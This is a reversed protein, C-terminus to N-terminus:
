KGPEEPRSVNASRPRSVKKIPPVSLYGAESADRIAKSAKTHAERKPRVRSPPPSLVTIPPLLVTPVTPVDSGEDESEVEAKSIFRKRSRRREAYECSKKKRKCGICAGGGTNKECEFNSRVCRRCPPDHFDGSPVIQTGKPAKQTAKSRKPKSVIVKEEESSSASPKSTDSLPVHTDYDPTRAREKGKGIEVVKEQEEEEDGDGLLEFDVIDRLGMMPDDDGEADLDGFRVQEEQLVAMTLADYRAQTTPGPGAVPGPTPSRRTPLIVTDPIVTQTVKPSLPTPSTSNDVPVGVLPEVPIAPTATTAAPPITSTPAQPSRSDFKALKKQLRERFKPNPKLSNLHVEHIFTHLFSRAHVAVAVEEPAAMASTYFQKQIFVDLM